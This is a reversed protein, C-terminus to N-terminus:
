KPDKDNGKKSTDYIAKVLAVGVGGLVLAGALVMVALALDLLVPM